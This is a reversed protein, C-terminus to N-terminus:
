VRAADEWLDLLKRRSEVVREPPTRDPNPELCLNGGFGCRRLAGIIEPFDIYGHGIGLHDLKGDYDHVHLHRLCAGYRTLLGGLTGFERFAVGDHFHMHGTDVTLGVRPLDLREVLELDRPVETELGVDVSFIAAQENLAELSRALAAERDADSAPAERRGTHVTVVGGGLEAGLRLTPILEEVTAATLEEDVSCLSMRSDDFGSHLDVELGDVAARLRSVEAPTANLVDFGQWVGSKGAMTWFSLAQFEHARVWEIQAYLDLLDGIRWLMCGIKVM